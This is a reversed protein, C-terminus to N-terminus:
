LCFGRIFLFQLSSHFVFSDVGVLHRTVYLSAVSVRYRAVSDATPEARIVYLRSRDHVPVRRFSGVRLVIAGTGSHHQERLCPLVEPVM